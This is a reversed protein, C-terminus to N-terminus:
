VKRKELPPVLKLKQCFTKMQKNDYCIFLQSSDVNLGSNIRPKHIVQTSKTKGENGIKFATHLTHHLFTCM